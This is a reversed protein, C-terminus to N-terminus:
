LNCFPFVCDLCASSDFRPPGTLAFCLTSVQTCPYFSCSSGSTSYFPLSLTSHSLLFVLWGAQFSAISAPSGFFFFRINLRTPSATLSLLFAAVEWIIIIIPPFGVHHIPGGSLNAWVAWLKRALHGGGGSRGRGCAHRAAASNGTRWISERRGEAQRRATGLKMEPVSGSWVGGASPPPCLSAVTAPGAGRGGGRSAPRQV